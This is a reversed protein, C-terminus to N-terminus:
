MTDDSEVETKPEFGSEREQECRYCKDSAINKCHSCAIPFTLQGMPYKNAVMQGMAYGRDYADEVKDKGVIIGLDEFEAVVLGFLMVVLLVLFVVTGTAMVFAAAKTLFMM